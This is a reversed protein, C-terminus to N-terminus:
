FLLGGCHRGGHSFFDRHLLREVLIKLRPSNLKEACNELSDLKYNTKYLYCQSAFAERHSQLIPLAQARGSSDLGIDITMHWVHSLMQTMVVRPIMFGMYYFDDLLDGPTAPFLFKLPSLIPLDLYLELCALLSYGLASVDVTLAFQPSLPYVVDLVGAQPKDICSLYCQFLVCSPKYLHKCILKPPIKSDYSHQRLGLNSTVVLRTWKSGTHLVVSGLDALVLRGPDGPTLDGTALINDPSIDCHTMCCYRNLFIVGSLLGIFESTLLDLNVRTWDLELLNCRLRPFLLARCPVCVGVVGLLRTAGKHFPYRERTAEMIDNMIAEYYFERRSTFHKMCQEETVPSIVGFAGRGMCTSWDPDQHTCRFWQRPVRLYAVSKNTKSIVVHHKMYYKSDWLQSYESDPNRLEMTCRPCVDLAGISSRIKSKRRPTEPATAEMSKWRM